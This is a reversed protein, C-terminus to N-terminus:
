EELPAVRDLRWSPLGRTARLIDSMELVEYARATELVAESAVPEARYREARFSGAAAAAAIEALPDAGFVLAGDLDIARLDAGAWGIGALLAGRFSAAGLGAESFDVDILRAGEFRAALAQVGAMNVGRLTAGAFDAGNMQTSFVAGPTTFPARAREGPLSAFDSREIRAGRMRLNDLIAGGLSVEVLEAHSLDAYPLQAGEATVAFLQIGPAHAFALDLGFFNLVELNRLGAGVIVRLLQGREPSAPRDVLVEGPPAQEWGMAAQMRSLTGPLDDARGAMAVRLRDSPDAPNLGLDLFRYPRIARSASVVRFILSRDLDRAPDLLPILDAAGEGVPRDRAVRDAAEGLLAAIATVEVALGANRAAEALQVDQSLLITQEQLKENQQALLAAQAEILSNQKFLLATGALAAMAAILATLSTMIWRRTALWAYRALSLQVLERAARTARDPDRAVAGEAVGTLPGAFLELQADAFGFLRRLIPKRLMFLMLGSLAVVVLAVLFVGAVVGASDELFGLGSFALLFGAAIGFAFFMIGFATSFGGGRIEPMLEEASNRVM